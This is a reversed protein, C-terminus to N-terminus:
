EGPREATFSFDDEIDLGLVVDVTDDATGEVLELHVGDAELTLESNPDVKISALLSGDASRFEIEGASSSASTIEITRDTVNQLTGAVVTADAGGVLAPNTITLPAGAVVVETTPTADDDSSCAGLGVPVALILAFSFSRALSNM